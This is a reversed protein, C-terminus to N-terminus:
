ASVESVPLSRRRISLIMSRYGQDERSPSVLARCYNLASMTTRMSVRAMSVLPCCERSQCVRYPYGDLHCDGLTLVNYTPFSNSESPISAYLYWILIANYTYLYVMADVIWNGSVHSTFDVSVM